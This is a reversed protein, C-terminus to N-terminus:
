AILRRRVFAGMGLLGTGLLLLSAPEPTPVLIDESEVTGSSNAEIAFHTPGMTGPTISWTVSVDYTTFGGVTTGATPTFTGSFTVAGDTLSINGTNANFTVDFVSSGFTPSVATVGSSMGGVISGTCGTGQCQFDITGAKAQPTYMALALLCLAPFVYRSLIRVM